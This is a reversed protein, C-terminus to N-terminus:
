CFEYENARLHPMGDWYGAAPIFIYKSTDTNSIFKRGNVKNISTWTYNTGNILEQCQDKTPM